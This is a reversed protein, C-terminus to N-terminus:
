SQFVSSVLHFLTCFPSFYPTGSPCFTLITSTYLSSFYIPPHEVQVRFPWGKFYWQRYKRKPANTHIVYHHVFLFIGRPVIRVIGRTRRMEELPFIINGCFIFRNCTALTDRTVHGSRTFSALSANGQGHQLVLKGLRGKRGRM